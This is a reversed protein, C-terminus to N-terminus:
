KVEVIVRQYAVLHFPGDDHVECILHFTKGQADAPVLLDISSSSPDTISVPTHYTGAEPQHWWFFTLNDGDPDSSRSADLHLAKGAKAKIHLASRSSKGNVCVHPNKNGTGQEAWQIRSAFENLEDPYFRREYNQTITKQPEQWSNWAYTLSDPSIGWEHCGAWGAQRPDEPDALGNPMVNLFSPTDGEVGWKYNPYVSGLAGHGQIQTQYQNWHKKGLDCFLQWTNEDWVFKLDDKFEQRMWLHSSYARDMRMEFKMDQDTITYVRFKHLFAKFDAESRTQRVRWIAQALTNGSGWTAVWIPRDDDEDALQILFDSGKTDNGEGIVKIGARHSGPMVRSRIYDVSPWYGIKQHVANEADRPLFDTQHSRAMLNKVDKGYADVVRDLYEAWSEPYPDCNWGVTTMIAEIEFMDAYSLLRVASEMDDPEVDCDGIDTMVVLRPKLDDKKKATITLPLILLTILTIFHHLKMKKRILKNLEM